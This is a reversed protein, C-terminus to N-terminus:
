EIIITRWNPKDFSIILVDELAKRERLSLNDVKGILGFGLCNM